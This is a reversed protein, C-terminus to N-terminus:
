SKLYTYRHIETTKKRKNSNNEQKYGNNDVKKLIDPKLLKQLILRTINRVLQVSSIYRLIM